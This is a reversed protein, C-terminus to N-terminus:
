YGYVRSNLADLERQATMCYPHSPPLDCMRYLDLAERYLSRSRSYEAVKNLLFAQNRTTRGIDIRITRKQSNTTAEEVQAHRIKLAGQCAEMAEDYRHAKRMAEAKKDFAFALDISASSAASASDAPLPIERKASTSRKGSRGHSDSRNTSNDGGPRESLNMGSREAANRADRLMTTVNLLDPHNPAMGKTKFLAVVDSLIGVAERCQGNKMHLASKKGLLRAFALYDDGGITRLLGTCKDYYEMAAASGKLSWMDGLGEFIRAVDLSRRTAEDSSDKHSKLMKLCRESVRGAEEYSTGAKGHWGLESQAKGTSLLAQAMLISDDLESFVPVIDLDADSSSREKHFYSYEDLTGGFTGSSFGDGSGIVMGTIERKRRNQALVLLCFDFADLANKADRKRFLCLGLNLWVRAMLPHHIDGDDAM